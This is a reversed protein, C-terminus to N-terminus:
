GTIRADSGGGCSPSCAPAIMDSPHSIRKIIIVTILALLWERAKNRVFM